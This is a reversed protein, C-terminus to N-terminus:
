NLSRGLTPTVKFVQVRGGRAITVSVARGPPTEGILRLLDRSNRVGIGDFETVLDGARIGVTEAPGKPQVELVVAGGAPSPSSATRVNRFTAGIQSGPGRLTLLDGQPRAPTPTALITALVLAGSVSPNRPNRSRHTALLM